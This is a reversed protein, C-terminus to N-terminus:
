YDSIQSKATQLEGNQIWKWIFYEFDIWKRQFPIKYKKYLRLENSWRFEQSESKYINDDKNQM